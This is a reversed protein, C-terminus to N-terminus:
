VMFRLGQIGFGLGGKLRARIGQGGGLRLSGLCALRFQM